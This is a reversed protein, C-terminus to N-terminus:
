CQIAHEEINYLFDMNDSEAIMSAMAQDAKERTSYVGRVSTEQCTEFMVLYVKNM